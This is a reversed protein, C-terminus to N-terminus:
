QTTTTSNNTSTVPVQVMSSQLTIPIVPSIPIWTGETGESGILLSYTGDPITLSLTAMDFSFTGDSACPNAADYLFSAPHNIYDDPSRYILVVFYPSNCVGTVVLSSADASKKLSLRADFSSTHKASKLFDTPYWPLDKRTATQNSGFGFAVKKVWTLVPPPPVSPAPPASPQQLANDIADAATNAANNVDNLGASVDDIISSGYNVTLAISELYVDPKADVTPVTSIMVQLKKLDDWSTIPVTISYNQFNSESVTGAIVWNIGDTSYSIDFFANPSFGSSDALAKTAFADIIKYLFSTPSSSSTTDSSDDTPAPTPAPPPTSPTSTTTASSNDPTITPQSSTTQTTTTSNTSTDTSSTAVTPSSTSAPTSTTVTFGTSTAIILGSSSSLSGGGSSNQNSSTQNATTQTSNTQNTTQQTTNTQASATQASIMAWNFTLTVKTPANTQDDVPFYGCFIQSATTSALFASNDVTYDSPNTDGQSVDTQGSANQPNQWGGLCFSPYYVASDAKAVPAKTTAKFFVLLVACTLLGLIIKAGISASKKAVRFIRARRHTGFFNGNM